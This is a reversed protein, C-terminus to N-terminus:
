RLDLTLMGGSQFDGASPDPLYIGFDQADGGVRYAVRIKDNGFANLGAIAIGSTADNAVQVTMKPTVLNGLADVREPPNRDVIAKVTREEGGLPVYVVDEAHHALHAERAYRTFLTSFRSM